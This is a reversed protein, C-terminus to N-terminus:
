RLAIIEELRDITKQCFAICRAKENNWRRHLFADFDGDFETGYDKSVRDHWEKDTLDLRMKMVTEEFRTYDNSGKAPPLYSYNPAGDEFYKKAWRYYDAVAEIWITPIKDLPISYVASYEERFNPYLRSEYPWTNVATEDYAPIKTNKKVSITTLLDSETRIGNGIVNFIYDIYGMLSNKAMEKSIPFRSKLLCYEEPTLIKRDSMTDIVPPVGSCEGIRVASAFLGIDETRAYATFRYRGPEIKVTTIEKDYYEESRESPLKVLMEDYYKKDLMTVWWLDTCFNGMLGYGAISVVEDADEDYSGGIRISKTDPNYFWSPCTNGVSHHFIQHSVYADTTQRCGKYTNIDFDVNPLMGAGAMESFRDPWDDFVVEGTPFDIEVEFVMNSQCPGNVAEYHLNTGNITVLLKDGCDHCKSSYEMQFTVPQDGNIMGILQEKTPIDGDAMMCGYSPLSFSELQRILDLENQNEKQFDYKRPEDVRGLAEILYRISVHSTDGTITLTRSKVLETVYEVIVRNMLIMLRTDSYAIINEIAQEAPTLQSKEM